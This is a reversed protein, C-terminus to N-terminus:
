KILASDLKMGRLTAEMAEASLAAATGDSYGNLLDQYVKQADQSQEHRWLHVKSKPTM